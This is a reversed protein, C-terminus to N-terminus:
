LTATLPTANALSLQLDKGPFSLGQKHLTLTLGIIIHPLVHLELVFM